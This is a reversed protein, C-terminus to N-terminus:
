ISTKGSDIFCFKLSISVDTKVHSEFEVHSHRMSLLSESVHMMILFSANM